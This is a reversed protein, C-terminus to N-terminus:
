ILARWPRLQMDMAELLGKQSVVHFQNSHIEKRLRVMEIKTKSVGLPSSIFGPM